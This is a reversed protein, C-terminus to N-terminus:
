EGPAHRGGVARGGRSAPRRYVALFRRVATEEERDLFDRWEVRELSPPPALEEKTLPWPIQPAPEDPERGRCIVLLRGGPAVLEGLQAWAARRPEAPMAQLTYIEVVLDFARRWEDNPALLNAVCFELAGPDRGSAPFRERALAVATPAIDFATVRWGRGRLFDANDGLGCGVVLARGAPLNAQLDLWDRLHPNAGPDAWPLECEGARHAQYGLEFWDLPRGTAAAANALERIRERNKAM